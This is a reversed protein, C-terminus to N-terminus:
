RSGRPMESILKRIDDGTFTGGELTYDTVYGGQDVDIKAFIRGHGVVSKRKRLDRVLEDFLRDVDDPRPAHRNRKAM